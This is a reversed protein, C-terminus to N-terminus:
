EADARSEPTSRSRRASPPLFQPATSHTPSYRADRVTDPEPSVARLRSGPIALRWPSSAAWRSPLTSVWHVLAKFFQARKSGGTLNGTISHGHEILVHLFAVHATGKQLVHDRQFRMDRRNHGAAM